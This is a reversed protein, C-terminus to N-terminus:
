ISVRIGVRRRGEEVKEEDQCFETVPQEINIADPLVRADQREEDLLKRGVKHAPCSLSLQLSPVRKEEVTLM